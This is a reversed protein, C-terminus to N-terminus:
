RGNNQAIANTSWTESPIASALKKISKTKRSKDKKKLARPSYEKTFHKTDQQWLLQESTNESQEDSTTEGYLRLM